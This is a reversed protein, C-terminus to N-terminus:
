LNWGCNPCYGLGATKIELISMSGCGPCDGICNKCLFPNRSGICSDCVLRHCVACVRKNSTETNCLDCVKVTILGAKTIKKRKGM